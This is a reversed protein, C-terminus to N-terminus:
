HPLVGDSDVQAFGVVFSAAASGEANFWSMMDRMNLQSTDPGSGQIRLLAFGMKGVAPPPSCLGELTAGTQDGFNFVTTQNERIEVTGHSPIFRGMRAQDLSIASAM